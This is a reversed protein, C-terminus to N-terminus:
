ASARAGLNLYVDLIAIAAPTVGPIRGAQGLTAPRVRQLKQKVETSLGPIGEYVFGSPITRGEAARLGEIQREQQAIYGAYKFETEVTTLVGHGLERGVQVRIWNVLQDIRADPRKLWTSLAPNDSAAELGVLEPVANARTKNLLERIAEKQEQKELFCSWRKDDVLGAQRGQPTLREDANDIRLHLRFEARSTFMRYPEDAGKSILDDILIGVYGDNRGLILEPLGKCQLAANLGAILGQCAAEEYGSTGNIQGALFLGPISKVELTHRLERPDLADYEIAYGPRIMEADELGPVSAVM